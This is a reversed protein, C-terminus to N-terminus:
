IIFTTKTEFLSVYSPLLIIDNKNNDIGIYKVYGM